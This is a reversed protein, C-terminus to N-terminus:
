QEEGRSSMLSSLCREVSFIMSMSASDTDSCSTLATENVLPTTPLMSSVTSLSTSTTERTREAYGSMGIPTSGYTEEGCCM